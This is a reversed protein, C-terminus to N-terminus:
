KRYHDMRSARPLPLGAGLYYGTVLPSSRDGSLYAHLAAKNGELLMQLAIRSVMWQGGAIRRGIDFRACWERVTRKSRRAIVAAEVITVAEAAQYPSLVAPWSPSDIAGCPRAQSATSHNHDQPLAQINTM